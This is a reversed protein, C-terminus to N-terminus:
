LLKWFIRQISKVAVLDATFPRKFVEIFLDPGSARADEDTGLHQGLAVMEREDGAHDDNIQVLGQVASIVPGNLAESLQHHLDRAPCAPFLTRPLDYQM